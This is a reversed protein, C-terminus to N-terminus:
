PTLRARRRLTRLAAQAPPVGFGPPSGLLNTGLFAGYLATSRLDTQQGTLPSGQHAIYQWGSQEAVVMTNSTGDTLGALGIVRGPILSGNGGMIGLSNGNGVFQYRTDTKITATTPDTGLAYGGPPVMPTAGSDGGGDPPSGPTAVCGAVGAYSPQVIQLPIAGFSVTFFQTLPSSPCLMYAPRFGQPNSPSSTPNGVILANPNTTAPGNLYSMYAPGNNQSWVGANQWQQAVTTGEAYPLIGFYWSTGYGAVSVMVGAGQQTQGPSPSNVRAGYPLKNYSDHYNQLALGIQKLNNACQAAPRKARWKCPPCSCPM